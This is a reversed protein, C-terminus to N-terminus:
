NAFVHDWPSCNDPDSPVDRCAQMTIEATAFTYVRSCTGNGTTIEIRNTPQHTSSGLNYWVYPSDGDAKTDCVYLYMRGSSYYGAHATSGTTYAYCDYAGNQSHCSITAAPAVVSSSAPAASATGAGFVALMGALLTLVALAAGRSLARRRSSRSLDTSNSM